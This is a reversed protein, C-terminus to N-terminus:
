WGDGRRDRGGRGLADLDTGFPHHLLRRSQCLRVRAGVFQFVRWVKPTIARYPIDFRTGVKGSGDRTSSTARTSVYRAAHHCDIFHSGVHIVDEKDVDDIIDAETLIVRERCGVPQASTSITPGITTTPGSTKASGM